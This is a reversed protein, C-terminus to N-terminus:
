GLKEFDSTRDIVTKDWAMTQKEIGKRDGLWSVYAFDATVLDFKQKLEWPRPMFSTETWALAVNHQRLV